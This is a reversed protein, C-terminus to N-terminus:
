KYVCFIFIYFSTTSSSLIWNPNSCMKLFLKLRLYVHCMLHSFHDFFFRHNKAFSCLNSLRMHRVNHNTAISHFKSAFSSGITWRLHVISAWKRFIFRHNMAFSRCKSMSSSSGLAKMDFSKKTMWLYRVQPEDCFFM